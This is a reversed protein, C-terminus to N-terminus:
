YLSFRGVGDGYTFWLAGDPGAAMEQPGHGGDALPFETIRGQGDVRGLTNRWPESIWVAGDPGRAIYVAFCQTYGGSEELCPHDPLPFETIRGDTTIRGLLGKNPELFWLAGDPGAVIDGPMHNVGPLKFETVRGATTIRGISTGGTFWLAGDPGAAIGYSFGGTVPFETMMGAPTIRGIKGGGSDPFWIRGDPGAAIAHPQSNYTVRQPPVPYETVAGRPTIRGVADGYFEAFWLNGDPGATIGDPWGGPDPLRFMTFVGAPTLRVIAADIPDGGVMGQVPAVGSATFWVNGDPGATIGNPGPVGDPLPFRRVHRLSPAPSPAPGRAKAAPSATCASTVACVTVLLGVLQWCRGLRCM